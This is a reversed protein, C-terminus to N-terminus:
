RAKRPRGVPRKVPIDSLEPEQETLVLKSQELLDIESKVIISNNKRRPGKTPSRTPTPTTKQLNSQRRRRNKSGNQLQAGMQLSSAAEIDEKLMLKSLSCSDDCVAHEQKQHSIDMQQEFPIFDNLPEVKLPFGKKLDLAQSSCRNLITTGYNKQDRSAQSSSSDFPQPTVTSPKNPVDFIEDASGVKSIINPYTLNNAGLIDPLLKNEDRSANPNKAALGELSDAAPHNQIIDVQNFKSINLPNGNIKPRVRRVEEYADERVSYNRKLIPQINDANHTYPGQDTPTLKPITGAAAGDVAQRGAKRASLLALGGADVDGSDSDLVREQIIKIFKRCESRSYTEQVLLQMIADKPEIESVIALSGAYDKLVTEKEGQNLQNNELPFLPSDGLDANYGEGRPDPPRSSTPSCSAPPSYGDSAADTATSGSRSSSDPGLVAALIRGAGSVLGALWGRPPPTPPPPSARGSVSPRPPPDGGAASSEM